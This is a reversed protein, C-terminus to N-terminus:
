VWIKKKSYKEYTSQLNPLTNELARPLGDVLIYKYWKPDSKGVLKKGLFSPDVM